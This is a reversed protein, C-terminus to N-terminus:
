VLTSHMYHVNVNKWKKKEVETAASELKWWRWGGWGLIAITICDGVGGGM